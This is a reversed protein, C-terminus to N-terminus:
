GKATNIAYRILCILAPFLRLKIKCKLRLDSEDKMFDATINVEKVKLKVTANLWALFASTAASQLGYTLATKAADEGGITFNIRLNTIRLKRVLRKVPSKASDYILKIMEFDFNQKNAKSIDDAVQSLGSNDAAQEILTKKQNSKKAKKIKKLKKKKTKKKKKSKKPKDSNYLTIFLYKVKESFDGKYEIDASISFSLAIAILAILGGIIALIIWIM